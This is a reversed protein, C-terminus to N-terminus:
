GALVPVVSTDHYSHRRSQGFRSASGIPKPILNPVRDDQSRRPRVFAAIEASRARADAEGLEILRAMYDGQFMLLSVMDNSRMEGRGLRRLLFRFGRPLDAEFQNALRGLDQSPRLVLVDVHRLDERANTPMRAILENFRRVRRADADLLDLFIANLLTGAVHSPQPHGSAELPSAGDRARTYRTSVAIIKQAGLKIAPSLPTTLRMGGDGYWVDDIEVAPFVFPLAGSAMVHDVRLTGDIPQERASDGIFAGFRGRSQVWTTSQGTKYSSATVGVAHVAGADLNRTVRDFSGDSSAGLTRTLLRRLPETDVLSRRRASACTRRAFLRRGWNAIWSALDVSEVGCVDATRLNQWIHTLQDVSAAFREQRSALHMAIMGGASVGTLIGPALDPYHAAIHRLVGVQYAARAGGGTLVLALSADTTERPCLPTPRM